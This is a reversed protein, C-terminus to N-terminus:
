FRIQMYTDSSEFGARHYVPRGMASARLWVRGVDGRARAFDLLAKLIARAVGRSRHGPETYMSMVYADRATLGPGPPVDYVSIGGSGVVRGDLDAVFAGFAPSDLRERLWVSIAAPLAAPDPLREPPYEETMLAVRLRVWADVDAAGVRRVSVV